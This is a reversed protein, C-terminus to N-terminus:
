QAELDESHNNSNSNSYNDSRKLRELVRECLPVLFKDFRFKSYSDITDQFYRRIDDEEEETLKM